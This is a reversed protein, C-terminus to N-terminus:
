ADFSELLGDISDRASILEFVAERVEDKNGMQMLYEARQVSKIISDLRGGQALKQAVGKEKSNAIRSQSREGITIARREVM